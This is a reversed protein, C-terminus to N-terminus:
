ARIASTNRLNNRPNIEVFAAQRASLPITLVGWAAFLGSYTITASPRQQSLDVLKPRLKGLVAFEREGLHQRCFRHDGSQPLQSDLEVLRQIIRDRSEPEKEALDHM